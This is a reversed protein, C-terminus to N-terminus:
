DATDSPENEPTVVDDGFDGAALAVDEVEDGEGFGGVFWEFSVFVTAGIDEGEASAAVVHFAFFAVADVVAGGKGVGNHNNTEVLVSAVDGHKGERAIEFGGGGAGGGAFDVFDVPAVIHFVVVFLGAGFGEHGFDAVDKADIELVVSMEVPAREDLDDVSEAADSDGEVFINFIVVVSADDKLGAFGISNAADFGDSEGTSTVAGSTAVERTAGGLM